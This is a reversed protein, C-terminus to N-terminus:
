GEPRPPTACALPMSSGSPLAPPSPPGPTCFGGRERERENVGEGGHGNRMRSRDDLSRATARPHRQTSAPWTTTCGWAGEGRRKTHHKQQRQGGYTGRSPPARRRREATDDPHLHSSLLARMTPSPRLPRPASDLPRSQAPGTTHLSHLTTRHLATGHGALEGGPRGRAGCLPRRRSLCALLCALLCAAASPSFPM